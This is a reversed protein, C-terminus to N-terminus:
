TEGCQVYQEEAMSKEEALREVYKELVAELVIKVGYAGADTPWEGDRQTLQCGADAEKIARSLMNIQVHM